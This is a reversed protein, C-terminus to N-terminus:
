SRKLSKKSKKPSAKDTKVKKPSAKEIKSKKSPANDSKVQLIREAVAGNQRNAGKTMALIMAKQSPFTQGTLPGKVCRYGSKGVKVCDYGDQSPRSWSSVPPLVLLSSCLLVVLTPRFLM